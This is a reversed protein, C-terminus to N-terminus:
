GSLVEFESYISVDVKGLLPQANLLASQLEELMGAPAGYRGTMSTDTHGLIRKQTHEKVGAARMAEELTHRFSYAVLRRSKPVGAKRIMKNMRHSLCSSDHCSKTFLPGKPKAEFEAQAAILADGILPIRRQSGKTKIRRHPNNRIWLHPIDHDLILDSADLGGIELPRAGTLKMLAMIHRIEDTLRPAKDFYRDILKLHDKNFPLRDGASGGGDKIGPNSFPNRKEIEHDRFYRNIIARLSNIRRRTTSPKNGAAACKGIWIQVDKPTMTLINVDGLHDIVTDVAIKFVKEFRDGGHTKLDYAYAESIKVVPQEPEPPAAPAIIQQQVPVFQVATGTVRKVREQAILSSYALDYDAVLRAAHHEFGVPLGLPHVWETQGLMAKLDTPVRRRYRLYGDVAQLHRITAKAM